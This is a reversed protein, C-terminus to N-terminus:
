FILLLCFPYQDMIRHTTDTDVTRVLLKVGAMNLWCPFIGSEFSVNYACSSPKKIFDKGQKVVCDPIENLGTSFVGRHNKTVREVENETISHTKM